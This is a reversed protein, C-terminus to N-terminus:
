SPQTRRISILMSVKRNGQGIGKADLEGLQDVSVVDKPMGKHIVKAVMCARSYALERNKQIRESSFTFTTQNDPGCAERVERVLGCNSTIQEQSAHGVLLVHSIELKSSKLSDQLSKWEESTFATEYKCLATGEVDLDIRLPTNSSCVNDRVLKLM